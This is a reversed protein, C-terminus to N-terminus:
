RHARWGVVEVEAGTIAVAIGITCPDHHVMFVESASVKATFDAGDPPPVHSMQDRESAFVGKQSVGTAHNVFAFTHPVITCSIPWSCTRSAM